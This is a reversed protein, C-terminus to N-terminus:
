DPTVPQLQSVTGDPCTVRSVEAYAPDGRKVWAATANRPKKIELGAAEPDEANMSRPGTPAPGSRIKELKAKADATYRQLQGVFPKGDGCSFVLARVAQKGNHDFPPLNSASAVFYTEGDDDSFFQKNAISSTSSGFAHWVQYAALGVLVVLVGGVVRAAMKPNRNLLDRIGV